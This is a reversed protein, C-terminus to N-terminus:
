METPKKPFELIKAIDVPDPARAKLDIVQKRYQEFIVPSHDRLVTEAAVLKQALENILDMVTLGWKRLLEEEAPTM